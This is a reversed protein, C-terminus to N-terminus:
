LESAFTMAARLTEEGLNRTVGSNTSVKGARKISVAPCIEWASVSSSWALLQYGVSFQVNFHSSRAYRPCRARQSPLTGSGGLARAPHGRGLPRSARAVPASLM